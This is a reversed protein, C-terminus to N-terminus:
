GVVAESIGPDPSTLITRFTAATESPTRGSGPRSPRSRTASSTVCESMPRPRAPREVPPIGKDVTYSKQADGMRAMCSWHTAQYYTHDFRALRIGSVDCKRKIMLQEENSTREKVEPASAFEVTLKGVIGCSRLPLDIGGRSNTILSGRYEHADAFHLPAVAEDPLDAFVQGARERPKFVAFAPMEAPGKM